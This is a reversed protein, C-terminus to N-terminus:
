HFHCNIAAAAIADKGSGDISIIPHHRRCWGSSCLQRRGGGDGDGGNALSAITSLAMADDDRWGM